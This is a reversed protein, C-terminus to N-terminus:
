HAPPAAAEGSVYGIEFEATAAGEAKAEAAVAEAVAPAVDRNFVSPIIYDERLEDDGVIAAIGEAAALKM